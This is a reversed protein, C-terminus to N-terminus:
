YFTVQFFDLQSYITSPINESTLVISASSCCVIVIGIGIKWSHHLLPMQNSFNMGSDFRVVIGCGEKAVCANM